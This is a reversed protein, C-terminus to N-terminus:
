QVTLGQPAAPLATDTSTDSESNDGYEQTCDPDRLALNADWDIKGDPVVENDIGDNCQPPAQTPDVEEYNSDIDGVRIEDFYITRKNVSSAASEWPRKYIGWNLFFNGINLPFGSNVNTDDVILTGNRWVKLLGPKTVTIVGPSTMSSNSPEYEIVYNEWVGKSYSFQWNQGDDINSTPCTQLTPLSASKHCPTDTSISLLDWPARWGGTDLSVAPGQAYGASDWYPPTHIQMFQEGQTDQVWFESGDAQGPHYVSFGIWNPGNEKLLLTECKTGTYYCATIQNRFVSTAPNYSLVFKLSKSGQAAKTNVINVTADPGSYYKIGEAEANKYWNRNTNLSTGSEFGDYFRLTADAKGVAAGFFLACIGLTLLSTKLFKTQKM